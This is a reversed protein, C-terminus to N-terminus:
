HHSRFRQPHTRKSPKGALVTGEVKSFADIAEDTLFSQYHASERLRKLKAQAIAKFHAVAEDFNSTKTVM